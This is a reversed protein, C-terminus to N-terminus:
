SLLGSIARDKLVQADTLQRSAKVVRPAFDPFDEDVGFGFGVLPPGQRGYEIGELRDALGMCVAAAGDEELQIALRALHHHDIAAKAAM